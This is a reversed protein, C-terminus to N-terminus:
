LHTNLEPLDAPSTHFPDGPVGSGKPLGLWSGLPLARGRPVGHGQPGLDSGEWLYPAIFFASPLYSFLPANVLRDEGEKRGLGKGLLNLDLDKSIQLRTSSLKM